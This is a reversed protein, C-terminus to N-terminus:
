CNPSATYGPPPANGEADPASDPQPQGPQCACAKEEEPSGFRCNCYARVESVVQPILDILKDYPSNSHAPLVRVPDCGAVLFAVPQITVGAGTGGAFPPRNEEATLTSKQPPNGYEGGGAVFGFSVKSVPLVVTGDPASIPSGVITNVDIMRRINELTSSLINEIPHTPM